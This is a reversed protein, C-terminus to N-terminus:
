DIGYQFKNDCQTIVFERFRMTAIDYQERYKPALRWRMRQRYALWKKYARKIAPKYRKAKQNTLERSREMGVVSASDFEWHGEDYEEYCFFKDWLINEDASNYKKRARKLKKPTREFMSCMDSMMSDVAATYLNYFETFRLYNGSGYHPTKDKYVEVAECIKETYWREKDISLGIRRFDDKYLQLRYWRLYDYWLINMDFTPLDCELSEHNLTLSDLIHKQLDAFHKAKDKGIHLFEPHHRQFYLKMIIDQEIFGLEGGNPIHYIRWVYKWTDYHERIYRMDFYTHTGYWAIRLCTDALLQEEKSLNYASYDFTPITDRHLQNMIWDVNDDNGWSSTAHPLTDCYINTRQEVPTVTQTLQKKSDKCCCLTLAVFMVSFDFVMKNM